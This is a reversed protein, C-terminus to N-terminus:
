SNVLFKILIHNVHILFTHRVNSSLPQCFHTTSGPSAATYMLVGPSVQVVATMSSVCQPCPWRQCTGINGTTRTSKAQWDEKQDGTSYCWFIFFLKDGTGNCQRNLFGGDCCTCHVREAGGSCLPSMLSQAKHCTESATKVYCAGSDANYWAKSKRHLKLHWDIDPM